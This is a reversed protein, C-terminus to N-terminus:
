GVTSWTLHNIQNNAFHPKLAFGVATSRGSKASVPRYGYSLLKSPLFIGSNDRGVVTPSRETHFATGPRLRGTSGPYCTASGVFEGVTV